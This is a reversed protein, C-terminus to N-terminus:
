GVTGTIPVDTTVPWDYRLDALVTHGHTEQQFALYVTETTTPPPRRGPIQVATHRYHIALAPRETRGFRLIGWQVAEIASPPFFIYWLGTEDTPWAAFDLAPRHSVQCLLAHERTAFTRYFGPLWTFRQAKNEVGFLGTVFVPLKEKPDLPGPTVTPLPAATFHVFERQRLRWISVQLLVLIALWVGVGWWRGPLWGTAWLAAALVLGWQMTRLPSIGGIQGRSVTYLVTDLAPRLREHPFVTQPQPSAFAGGSQPPATHNGNLTPPQPAQPLM